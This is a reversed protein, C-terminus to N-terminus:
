RFIQHLGKQVLLRLLPYFAPKKALQVLLKRPRDMDGYTKITELLSPEKLVSLLRDVEEESLSRRLQFLRFGLLLERGFDQKWRQEYSALIQDDFRGEECCALAVEAAHRASRVGTYVGGGTTPKVMGAADGIFLTRNGFTRPMVGLPIAGSVRHVISSPYRSLFREFREKVAEEGCLGVRARDKGLPIVWGFFDPSAHPHVEVYAPEMEWRIEAQLGSLLVPSRPFGMMRAIGSRVGDAAIILRGRVEEKGRMGSTIVGSGSVARVSTKLRIDAGAELASAAMERDLIGRDVICAKPIGADLTGIDGSNTVFRAGRVQHLVCNQSVECEQLAPLSLLGACQIPYGITGHEEICLTTLGRAACERAATSGAPGTGVVVVDYM